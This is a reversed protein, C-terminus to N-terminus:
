RNLEFLRVGARLAASALVADRTSLPLDHRLALDLYSADYISLAHEASLRHVRLMEHIDGSPEVSLDLSEVDDFFKEIDRKQIIQRKALGTLVYIVEFWFPAPVLAGQATVAQLAAKTEPTSQSTVCWAIAVSADLVQAV